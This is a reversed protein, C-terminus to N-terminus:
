LGMEGGGEAVRCPSILAHGDELRDGSQELRGLVLGSPHVDRRQQSLSLQLPRVYVGGGRRCLFHCVDAASRVGPVVHGWRLAQECFDREDTSIERFRLLVDLVAEGNRALESGLVRKGESLHNSTAELKASTLSSASLQIELLRSTKSRSPVTPKGLCM